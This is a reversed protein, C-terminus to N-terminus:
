CLASAAAELQPLLMPVAPKSLRFLPLVSEEQQPPAEENEEAATRQVSRPKQQKPQQQSRRQNNDDHASGGSQWAIPKRLSSIGDGKRGLNFEVPKTMRPEWDKTDVSRMYRAKLQKIAEIEVLRQIPDM